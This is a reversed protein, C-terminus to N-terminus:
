KKQNPKLSTISNMLTLACTLCCKTLIATIVTMIPGFPSITVARQCSWAGYSTVLFERGSEKGKRFADAFSRGDWVEPVEGGLLEVLSAAFDFHYHLAMDVRPEAVGPFRVILPLRTTYQDATHHDGYINLEGLNEGHDASIIIVTEDLIGQESLKEIIKGVADDVYKIGMDYGDFM